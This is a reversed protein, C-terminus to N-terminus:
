YTIRLINNIKDDIYTSYVLCRDYEKINENKSILYQNQIKPLNIKFEELFKITDIENHFVLQISKNNITKSIYKISLKDITLLFIDDKQLSSIFKSM